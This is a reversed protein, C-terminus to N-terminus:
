RTDELRRRFGKSSTRVRNAFINGYIEKQRDHSKLMNLRMLERGEATQRLKAARARGGSAGNKRSLASKQAPSM